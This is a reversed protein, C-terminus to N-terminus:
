ENPNGATSLTSGNMLQRVPLRSSDIRAFAADVSMSLEAVTDQRRQQRGWVAVPYRIESVSVEGIPLQRDDRPVRFDELM